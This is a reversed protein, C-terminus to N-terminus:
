PINAIGVPGYKRVNYQFRYVRQIFPRPVLSVDLRSASGLCPWATQMRGTCGGVEGEGTGGKRSGCFRDEFSMALLSM